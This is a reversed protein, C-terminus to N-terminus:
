EKNASSSSPLLSLARTIPLGLVIRGASEPIGGFEIGIVRGFRDFIPSGSAGSGSYADLQLLSDRLIKGITGPALTPEVVPQAATGGMPADLGLPFGLLAIPDGVQTSDLRPRLAHVAPFSGSDIIQLLAIDADGAVKAIRARFVERSGSFQVAIRAPRTGDDGIVVHRNTLLLGAAAVGFATGSFVSDDPFQVYVMAVAAANARNIGAWDVGQAEAIGHRQQQVATYRRRLAALRAPNHESALQTRLASAESDAAAQAIRLARVERSLSDLASGIVAVQRRATSGQWVVVAVAGVALIALVILLSRFRTAQRSVQARLVGTASPGRPGRSAAPARPAAPPAPAHVAPVVQEVGETAIRFEMEPGNPGFQVRDGSALEYDATLRHGNVFTGNRSGLDRLVWHDGTQLLAAHRTSVDLDREADFRLDSLPHRGLGIYVKDYTERHGARGGSMIRLECKM